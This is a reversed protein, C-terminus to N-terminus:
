DRAVPAVIQEATEATFLASGRQRGDTLVVTNRQDPFIDVLIANRVGYRVPGPPLPAEAYAIVTDGDVEAGLYDLKLAGDPGYIRFREALYRGLAREAREFEGENLFSIKEDAIVSVAVDIDHLTLQHIVEVTEARHNINIRTLAAYFNHALAIGAVLAVLALGALVLGTGRFSALRRGKAM